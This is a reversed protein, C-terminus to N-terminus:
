GLNDLVTFLYHLKSAGKEFRRGIDDNILVYITPTKITTHIFSCFIGIVASTLYISYAYDEMNDADDILFKLFSAVILFGIFSAVLRKKDFLRTQNPYYLCSALNKRITKFHKMKLLQFECLFDCNVLLSKNLKHKGSSRIM